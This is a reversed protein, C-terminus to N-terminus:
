LPQLQDASRHAFSTLFVHLKSTIQQMINDSCYSVAVSAGRRAKSYALSIGLKPVKCKSKGRNPIDKREGRVNDVTLKNNQM